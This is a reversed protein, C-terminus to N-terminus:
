GERAPLGWAARLETPIEYTVRRRGNLVLFQSELLGWELKNLGYAIVHSSDEAQDLIQNIHVLREAAWAWQSRPVEMWDALEDGVMIRILSAMVGDLAEGPIMDNYMEILNRTLAVGEPSPGLHRNRFRAYLENAEGIDVPLIEPRIGLMVGVVRWVYYYDDAEEETVPLGLRKMGYIVELSFLLFAGLMDEQCIPVGREEVPWPEHPNHLLLWRVAAHILRVKQVAPILKSGLAFAQPDMVHLCFQASEAVRRQPHDMRHTAALVKVANQAAYCQILGATSLVLSIHMGHNAFFRGARQIREPDVWAPAYATQRLYNQVSVPLDAPIPQANDMLHRMVANVGVVAGATYVDAMVADALPDGEQRLEMLTSGDLEM